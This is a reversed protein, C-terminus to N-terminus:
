KQLIDEFQGSTFLDGDINALVLIILEGHRQLYTYSRLPVEDVSADLFGLQYPDDPNVPMFSIETPTAWYTNFWKEEWGTYADSAAQEDPDLTVQHSFKIFTRAGDPGFDVYDSVGGLEEGVSGGLRQWGLPLLAPDLMLDYPFEDPSPVNVTQRIIPIGCVPGCPGYLGLYLKVM